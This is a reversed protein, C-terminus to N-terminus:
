GLDFCLRLIRRGESETKLVSEEWVIQADPEDNDSNLHRKVTRLLLACVLCNKGSAGGILLAVKRDDAM